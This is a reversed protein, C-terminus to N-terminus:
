ILSLLQAKKQDFEAQTIIGLDLLSKLDKLKEIPSKQEPMSTGPQITPAMAQQVMQPMMFGMGLGVGGGVTQGAIGNVNNAADQISMAMKYKMFEDMNGLASMGSRQDIMEQVEEPVSISGVYFNHLSLGLNQFDPELAAKVNENITDYASPLDMVSQAQKGLIGTLKSVIINKLYDAIDADQYMGMTGVIQNVFVRSDSIQITYNGFARLRVMKLDRDAFLIPEQTGWKLNTFLKKNTFYVEARFPSNPGYAFSTVWKTIVPFNRTELMYRGAAFVDVVQGDRFFIAEQTERVTLQAGWKIETPGNDPVRKVMVSGSNDLFELVEVLEPM